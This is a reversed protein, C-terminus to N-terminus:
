EGRKEWPPKPLPAPMGRSGHYTSGDEDEYSGWKVIIREANHWDILWRVTRTPRGTFAFARKDFREWRGYRGIRYAPLPIKSWRDARVFEIHARINRRVRVFPMAAIRHEIAQYADCHKPPKDWIRKLESELILSEHNDGILLYLTPLKEAPQLLSGIMLLASLM